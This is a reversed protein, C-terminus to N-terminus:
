KGGMPVQKWDNKACIKLSDAPTLHGHPIKECYLKTGSLDMPIRSFHNKRHIQVVPIQKPIM